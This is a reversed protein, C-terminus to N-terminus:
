RAQPRSTTTTTPSHLTSRLASTPKRAPETSTSTRKPAKLDDVGMDNLGHPDEDDGGADDDNDAFCAKNTILKATKADIPGPGFWQGDVHVRTNLVPM